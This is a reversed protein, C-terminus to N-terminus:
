RASDLSKGQDLGEMEPVWKTRMGVYLEKEPKLKNMVDPDDLTGLSVAVKRKFVEADGTKWLLSRCEDCFHLEFKM